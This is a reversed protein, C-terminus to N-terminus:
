ECHNYPILLLILISSWILLESLSVSKLVSAIIGSCAMFLIIVALSFCINIILSSFQVEDTREENEKVGLFKITANRLLGQKISEFISFITIYLAWIGNTSTSFGRVLIMYSIVGFAFLSVRQLLTYFIANKWFSAEPKNDM